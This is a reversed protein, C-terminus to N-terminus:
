LGLTVTFTTGTGPQSEVTIQGQHIEVCQKVIALGLGTGPINGVNSGRYFSNFLCAQDDAAIGIGQDQIQFCLQRAQHILRFQIKSGAPSYKIANSLLNSLIHRLLREDLNFSQAPASLGVTTLEIVQSADTQFPEILDQCFSLVPLPQPQYDFCRSETEGMILVDELLQNMREVASKARQIYSHRKEPSFAEPPYDLLDLSFLVASLPNRFEHSVISVFQSKMQNLAQEQELARQVSLEAQHRNLAIEITVSLDRLDFPKVIYGFPEAAKVQALTAADAHATLFVVPLQYAQRMQMAAAVGTQEGQLHIDMLVLDPRQQAVAALAAAASDVTGTVGYGLRILSEEIDLAIVTEDEVILIQAPSM